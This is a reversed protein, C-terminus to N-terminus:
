EGLRAAFVAVNLANGGPYQMAKHLYRDAVNDGAGLLRM